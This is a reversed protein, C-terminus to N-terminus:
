EPSPRHVTSTAILWRTGISTMAAENNARNADRWSSEGDIFATEANRLWNPPWARLLILSDPYTCTRRRAGVSKREHGRTSSSRFGPLVTKTPGFPKPLVFRTSASHYEDVSPECRTADSAGSIGAPASRATPDVTPPRHRRSS